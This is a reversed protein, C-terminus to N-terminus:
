TFFSLLIHHATDYELNKIFFTYAFPEECCQARFINDEWSIIVNRGSIREIHINYDDSPLGTSTLEYMQPDPIYNYSVMIDKSLGKRYFFSLHKLGSRPDTNEDIRALKMGEPLYSPALETPIGYDRCKQLIGYPDEESSSLSIEEYSELDRPHIEIGGPVIAYVFEFPEAGWVHVTYANVGFFLAACACVPILPRLWPSIRLKKAKKPIYAEIKEIGKQEQESIDTSSTIEYIAETLQSILDYDRKRAPKKSEQELLAQMEALMEKDANKDSM